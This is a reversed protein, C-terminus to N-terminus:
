SILFSDLSGGRLEVRRGGVIHAINTGTSSVTLGSESVPMAPAMQSCPHDLHMVPGRECAKGIDSGPELSLVGRHLTADPVINPSFVSQEHVEIPCQGREQQTQPPNGSKLVGVISCAVDSPTSISIAQAGSNPSDARLALLHDAVEHKHVYPHVEAKLTGHLHHLKPSQSKTHRRTSTDTDIAASSPCIPQPRLPLDQRITRTRSAPLLVRRGPSKHAVPRASERAPHDRIMGGTQLSNSQNLIVKTDKLSSNVSCAKQSRRSNPHCRSCSRSHPHNGSPTCRLQSRLDCFGYQPNDIGPHVQYTLPGHSAPSRPRSLTPIDIMPTHATQSHVRQLWATSENPDIARAQYSVLKSQHLSTSGPGEPHWSHSRTLSHIRSSIRQMFPHPRSSASSQVDADMRRRPKKPTIM